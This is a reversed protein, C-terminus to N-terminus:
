AEAMARRAKQMAVHSEAAFNFFFVMAPALLATFPLMIFFWQLVVESTHDVDLYTSGTMAAALTLVLATILLPFLAIFFHLCNTFVDIKLRHLIMGAMRMRDSSKLALAPTVFFLVGVTSFMLLLAALNLLFPGFALIVGIFDGLGPIEKLLYFLGLVMWLLLYVLVFPVAVYSAGIVLEVSKALIEKYSVPMGKVEHHYVRTLILGMSLLIGACIFVPLFTLSMTVWQGSHLALGRFFVVLLGSFAMVCFAFLLKQKSFTLFLARNFARKIEELGTDIPAAKKRPM